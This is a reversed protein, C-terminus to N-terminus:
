TIVVTCFTQLKRQFFNLTMGNGDMYKDFGIDGTFVLSSEKKM